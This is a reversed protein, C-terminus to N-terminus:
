QLNDYNRQNIKKLKKLRNINKKQHAEDLSPPYPHIKFTLKEKKSGHYSSNLFTVNSFLCKKYVEGRRNYANVEAEEFYINKLKELLDPFSENDKDVFIVFMNELFKFELAEAGVILSDGNPDFIIEFLNIYVSDNMMATEGNKYHPLRGM